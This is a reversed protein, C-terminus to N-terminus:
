WRKGNWFTSVLRRPFRPLHTVSRHAQANMLKKLLKFQFLISHKGAPHQAQLKGDGLDFEFRSTCERWGHICIQGGM